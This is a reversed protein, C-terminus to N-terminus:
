PAIKTKSIEMEDAELKIRWSDPRNELVEFDGYHAQRHHNPCLVMINSAALSGALLLSVPQVHHAEAFPLGNKRKFAVPEHGLAECLQCRCGRIEKVKKGVDGREIYTSIKARRKPDANRAELEMLRVGVLGDAKGEMTPAAGSLAAQRWIETFAARTIPITSNPLPKRFHTFDDGDPLTDVSVPRDVLNALVTLPVRWVTEAADNINAYQDTDPDSQLQASGAIQVIAYVAAPLGPRDRREARANLRMIGLDGPQIEAHNHDSVKYLLQDKRDQLWAEGNWIARNCVFMWYGTPPLTRTVSAPVPPYLPIPAADSSTLDSVIKRITAEIKAGVNPYPKYGNIWTRGMTQLVYSINQMRHEASTRRKLPGSLLMRQVAAKNYKEGQRELALMQLYAEVASSLEQFTWDIPASM